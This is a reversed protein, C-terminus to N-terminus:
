APSEKKRPQRQSNRSPAPTGSAQRVANRLSAWSLIRDRNMQCNPPHTFRQEHVDWGLKRLKVSLFCISYDVGFRRHIFKQIDELSWRGDGFGVPKVSRALTDLVARWEGDNLQPERGMRRRRLDGMPHNELRQAWASVAARTVGLRRAIESQSLDTTRLLRAGKLRRAEIEELSLKSM